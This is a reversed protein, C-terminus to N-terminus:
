HLGITGLRKCRREVRKFFWYGLPLTVVLFLLLIAIETPIPLLTRTNILLGRVADFGYTLPLALALPVLISPLAQVPFQSGAFISVLYDSVDVLTNAERMILVLAAFGFGFGYLALLMPLAVGIAQLVNGTPRFGFLLWGLLLLGLNVLTTVLLSAGTQGILFSFRPVPALWNSELVGSDMQTKLSYGIGWFVAGIYRSLVTGVLIFSMYDTTGTYAAFGVTGQATQFSRGLFYLPTLWIIPQMVQFLANLPYRLFHLWQNWIIARIARAQSQWTRQALSHTPNM